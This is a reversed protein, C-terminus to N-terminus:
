ASLTWAGCSAGLRIPAQILTRDFGTLAPLRAIPRFVLPAPALAHFGGRDGELWRLTGGDVGLIALTQPEDRRQVEYLRGPLSPAQGVALALAVTPHAYSDSLAPDAPLGVPRPTMFVPAAPWPQGFWEWRQVLRGGVSEISFCGLPIHHVDHLIAHCPHNM